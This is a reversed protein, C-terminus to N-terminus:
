EDTDFGASDVEDVDIEAFATVRGFEGVDETLLCGSGDDREAFSAWYGGGEFYSVADDPAVDGAGVGLQGHGGGSGENGDWLADGRLLGSGGDKLAQSGM